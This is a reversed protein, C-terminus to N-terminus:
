RSIRHQFDPTARILSISQFQSVHDARRCPTENEDSCLEMTARFYRYNAYPDINDNVGLSWLATEGACKHLLLMCRDFAKAKTRDKVRPNALREVRAALLVSGAV